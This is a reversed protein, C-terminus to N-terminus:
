PLAPEVPYAPAGDLAAACVGALELLRLDSGPPGVFQLGAPLGDPLLGMPISVAPCGALSAFATLDAQSDPVPADLAFAGQPTTPLVLVDVQAFLRRAKLKAADLMRDAAVYDAASRGRAYDLMARFAPSAPHATDAALDAAYTHLMEAEMLLLGARRMRAYPWDSFDVRQREGLEHELRALAADFVVQMPAEIGAAAPDALVGTRLRGPEWDPLALAVRRRRSRPDDADHGALVQLLMSLDGVERALLGVCDLRRAAPVLGRTSIEGHTPKLACVGCYSAPIRVSGLTDSGLAAAVMGTAVAVASGGSSGGATYGIRHPNHTAGFHPNATVAGLAGEDLATKGLIVAGAARLRAVAHADHAAAHGGRGPLGARTPWGAIDFNDKVAVPIGDLRGLVGERRRREAAETQERVLEPRVDVFAHLLPDLRAVTDLSIEALATATTRGSALGHLLPFLGARRLQAAALPSEADM